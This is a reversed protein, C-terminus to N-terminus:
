LAEKGNNNLDIIDQEEDAKTQLEEILEDSLLDHRIEGDCGMLPFENFDTLFQKTVEIENQFDDNWLRSFLTAWNDTAAVLYDGCDDMEHMHLEQHLLQMVCMRRVAIRIRGAAEIDIADIEAQSTFRPVDKWVGNLDKLVRDITAAGKEDLDPASWMYEDSMPLVGKPQHENMHDDYM